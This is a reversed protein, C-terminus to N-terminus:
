KIIPEISIPSATNAAAAKVKNHTFEWTCSLLWFRKLTNFYTETFKYTNFNREYGRNQNLIDNLGLKISIEKKYIYQKIDANWTIYNNNQPFRKDKQRFNINANTNLSLKKKLYLSGQGWGTISWFDTSSAANISSTAHTYEFSPGINFDYKDEKYKSVNIFFIYTATKNLNRIGNVFDINQNFQIEPGVTLNIKKKGAGISFNYSSNLSINKNGNVNITQYVNRGLTDITNNQTFANNTIGYSGNLWFYNDSLPKTWNMNASFNHSFAQKLLGNGIYVSLPNSNDAIPQLQQLSPAQANGAYNFRLTRNGTFKINFNANPFFNTFDYDQRVGKSINIQVFRNFAVAAGLGLSIKKKNLRLNIGPRQVLRNFDFDNSLSDIKSTYLGAGDKKQVTRNNGTNSIAVNYSIGLSWYKSLPETYALNLNYTKSDSQTSSQQDVTDKRIIALGKYYNNRSYLFNTAKSQNFNMEGAFSLTRRPKKFKHNWSFTGQYKTVDATTTSKRTSNNIFNNQNTLSEEYYNSSSNNQSISAKNIFKITNNSDMKNEITFGLNHRQKSSLSSATNNNTWSSDPLYTQSFTKSYGPANVKTYRYSTNISLSDGRFKNSFHIGGNWNKPIGNRGGYYSDENGEYTMWVGGDESMGMSMGDMEGGGFKESDGWGLETRGTNSNFGFVSLKRKGKFANLMLSNSYNDPLGGGVEAKGFYGQKKNSKLKLNVTKESVGDDIGTFAAQDSKKDYVQVEQVANAQLNKLAMGPDNGFFEEGDVLVNKVTEGMAILKGDKGVQFGPMKRLLEEVSAGDKVKFSDATYITTDGKIRIPSGSRVIVEQLLKSKNILAIDLIKNEGPLIGISDIYDAYIPHTTLLSYNGAQINKLLFNGAADTRAFRYLVSDKSRILAVVAHHVPKKEAQNFLNGALSGNQANSTIGLLLFLLILLSFKNM